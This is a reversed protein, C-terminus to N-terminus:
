RLESSGLRVVVLFGLLSCPARVASELFRAWAMRHDCVGLTSFQM